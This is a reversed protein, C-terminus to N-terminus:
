HHEFSSKEQHDQIFTGPGGDCPVPMQTPDFLSLSAGINNGTPFDPFVPLPLRTTHIRSVEWSSPPAVPGGLNTHTSTHM